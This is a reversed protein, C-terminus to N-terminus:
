GGYTTQERWTRWGAWICAGAVVFFALADRGSPHAFFFWGLDVLFLGAAGYFVYQQRTPWTSIERRGFDRWLLYAVLADALFFAVRLLLAATFLTTQANLLVIVLSIGALILLGRALPSIRNVLRDDV